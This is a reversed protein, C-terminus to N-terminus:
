LLAAMFDNFDDVVGLGTVCDYGAVSSWGPSVEGDPFRCGMSEGEVVDRLVSRVKAEYLLPNLWGLSKKGARLRADNVLAIMAAVTPASASTGLVQSETGAVIIQFGSGIASIDPMAR